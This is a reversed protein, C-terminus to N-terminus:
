PFQIRAFNEQLIQKQADSLEPGRLAHAPLSLGVVVAVVALCFFLHAVRTRYLHTRDIRLRFDM